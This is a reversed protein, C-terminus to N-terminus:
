FICLRNKRRNSLVPQTRSRASDGTVIASKLPLTRDAAPDSFFTSTEYELRARAIANNPEGTEDTSISPAGNQFRAAFSLLIDM